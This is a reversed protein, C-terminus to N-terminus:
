YAISSVQIKNDNTKHKRKNERIKQAKLPVPSSSIKPINQEEYCRM